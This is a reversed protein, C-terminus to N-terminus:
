IYGKKFIAKLSHPRKLCFFLYCLLGLLLWFLQRARRLVSVSIWLSVSTLGLSSLMIKNSYEEIGVQGPIFGGFSKLVLIGQDVLLADLYSVTFGLYSLILLMEFSGIIWNLTSWTLAMFFMKRDHKLYALVYKKTSKIEKLHPILFKQFRRFKLLHCKTLIRYLITYVFFCIYIFIAAIILIKFILYQYGTMIMFILGVLLFLSIQSILMISRSIFISSSAERWAVGEKQLQYAKYADGGLFGTPNIFAINEGILRIFFLRYFPIKQHVSNICNAWGLTGSMMAGLTVFLLLCFRNGITSLQSRIADINTTHVLYTLSLLLTGTVVIKFVLFANTKYFNTRSTM